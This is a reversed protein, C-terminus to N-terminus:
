RRRRHGGSKKAKEYAAFNPSTRAYSRKRLVERTITEASAILNQDLARSSSFATNTQHLQQLGYAVVDPAVVQGGFTRVEYTLAGYCNGLPNRGGFVILVVEPNTLGAPGPQEDLSTVVVGADLYQNRVSAELAARNTFCGGTAQDIVRIAIQTMPGLRDDDRM